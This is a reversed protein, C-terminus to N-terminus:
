GANEKNADNLFSTIVNDVSSFCEQFWKELLKYNGRKSCKRFLKGIDLSLLNKSSEPEEKGGSSDAKTQKCESDIPEEM